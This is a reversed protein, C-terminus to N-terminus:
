RQRDLHVRGALNKAAVAIWENTPQELFKWQGVTHQFSKTEHQIIAYGVDETNTEGGVNGSGAPGGFGFRASLGEKAMDVFGSARMPGQDVPVFSKKSRTMVNIELELYLARRMETPFRRAIGAIERQMEKLGVLKIQKSM